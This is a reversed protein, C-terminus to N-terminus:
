INNVKSIAWVSKASFFGLLFLFMKFYRTRCLYLWRFIKNKYFNLNQYTIQKIKQITIYQRSLLILKLGIYIFTCPRGMILTTM